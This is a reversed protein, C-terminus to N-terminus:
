SRKKEGRKGEGTPTTQQSNLIARARRVAVDKLDCRYNTKTCIKRISRSVDRKSKSLTVKTLMKAPKRAYKTRKTIFVVGKGSPDATVGIAKENALGSYKFSNRATLNLPEKTFTWGNSKVLFSSTKRLIQWQLDASM